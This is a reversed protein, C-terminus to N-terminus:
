FISYNIIIVGFGVSQSVSWLIYPEMSGIAIFIPVCHRLLDYRSMLLFSQFIWNLEHGWGRYYM